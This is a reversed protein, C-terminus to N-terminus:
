RTGQGACGHHARRDESSGQSSRRRVCTHRPDQPRESARAALWDTSSAQPNLDALAVRQNNVAFYGALNTAVTTKGCGGKANLVMIARM